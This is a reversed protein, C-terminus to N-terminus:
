LNKEETTESFRRTEGVRLSVKSLVGASFVILAALWLSIRVGPVAIELGAIEINRDWLLSSLRDLGDEVLPGIVLALLVCARVLLYFTAFIRGRMHDEVNEHLLTFGVVYIVGLCIGGVFLMVMAFHIQGTSVTAFLSIGAGFLVRTFTKAKDITNRFFFVLLVGAGVGFGLSTLLVGFGSKGAGLLEDTYIVGLPIVMGAGLMATALGANVTRVVPNIFAFQWGQKLDNIPDALYKKIGRSDSKKVHPNEPLALTSIILATILFSVANAYFALGMDDLRINDAWSSDFLATSLRGFLAMLGAGLPFTGYAAVLSLSNASTLFKESVLNPVSAEKAPSWLMTLAELILSAIFLGILNNIFPLVIMVMARGIDCFVMVRKRNWRDVFVGALPGFFFGPAIRAGLVLSLAAGENGSGVRIALISIALLGLWDGTASIVQAIWLRFFSPSDFAKETVNTIHLHLRRNKNDQKGLNM